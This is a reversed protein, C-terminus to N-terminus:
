VTEIMPLDLATPMRYDLFSPNLMRGQDDFVYEENLAWGAGQAIGGQIQGEAYSPHVATGVDTVATYRLIDTKGTEADVEVDVIHVSFSPGVGKPAVAARGVVPAGTANLKAALEKFTMRRAVSGPAPAPTESSALAAGSEGEWARSPAWFLDGADYEVEEAPV